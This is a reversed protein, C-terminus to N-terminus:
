LFLRFQFGDDSDSLNLPVRTSNPINNFVALVELRQAIVNRDDCFAIVSFDQIFTSRIENADHSPWDFPGIASGPKILTYLVPQSCVGVVEKETMTVAM